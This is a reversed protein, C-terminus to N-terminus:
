RRGDPSRAISLLPTTQIKNNAAPEINIAVHEGIEKEIIAQNTLALTGGGKEDLLDYPSVFYTLKM